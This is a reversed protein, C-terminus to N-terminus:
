RYLTSRLPPSKWCLLFVHYPLGITALWLFSRPPLRIHPNNRHQYRALRNTEPNSHIRTQSRLISAPIYQQDASPNSAFYFLCAYAFFTKGAVNNLVLAEFRSPLDTDIGEEGLYKHHERHYGKFAMAYPVGIALNSVIALVKNAKL